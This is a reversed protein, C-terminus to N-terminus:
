FKLKKLILYTGVKIKQNLNSRMKNNNEHKLFLIYMM